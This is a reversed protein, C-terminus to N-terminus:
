AQFAKFAEPLMDIIDSAILSRPSFRAAYYDGALGHLYTAIMTAVLPRYGQALFAGIMGTLVDGSGATAMGSNGTPNFYVKGGPTCIASYHGKLLVYINYQQALFLAEDLRQESSTCYGVMRELEKAHPTLISYEPIRTFLDRREGLINLADADLVVPTRARLLLDDLMAETLDAQGIGPGIAISSYPELSAIRTDVENHKDLSIMAEPLASQMATECCGPLHATLKGVGSRLAAKAAMIAAGTKGRSGAVLLLHGLTGKHAFRDLPVIAESVDHDTILHYKASLEEKGERSLNIPLTVINGVFSSNEAFFFSLKPTEVTFTHTAHIISDGSRNRNSDAFLGSPIDISVVQCGSQNIQDVLQAFGSELPRNLGVGFLGDIIVHRQTLQPMTFSTKVENFILNGENCAVARKESCEVSLNDKINFLYVETTYMMRALEVAITLADAGNNGPGALIVVPNAQPKYLRSFHQAFQQAVRNILEISSVGDHEMTYQDLAKIKDSTFVKIM